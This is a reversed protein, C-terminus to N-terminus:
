GKLFVSNYKHQYIFIFIGFRFRIHIWFWPNNEKLKLLFLYKRVQHRKVWIPSPMPRPIPGRGLSSEPSRLELRPDIFGTTRKAPTENEHVKRITFKHPKTTRPLPLSMRGTRGRNFPEVVTSPVALDGAATVPAIEGVGSDRSSNSSYSDRKTTSSTSTGLRNGDVSSQGQASGSTLGYGGGSSASSSNNRSSNASSSNSSSVSYSNNKHTEVNTSAQTQPIQKSYIGLSTNPGTTTSLTPPPPPPPDPIKTDETITDSSLISKNDAPADDKITSTDKEDDDEDEEEVITDDMVDLEYLPDEEDENDDDDDEDDLEDDDEIDDLQPAKKSASHTFLKIGSEEVFAEDTDPESPTPTPPDSSRGGLTGGMRIRRMFTGSRDQLIQREGPMRRNYPGFAPAFGSGASYQFGSSQSYSFGTAGIQYTPNRANGNVNPPTISRVNRHHSDGISLDDKSGKHYM